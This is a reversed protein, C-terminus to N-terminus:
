TGRLGEPCPDGTSATTQQASSNAFFLPHRHSWTESHGLMKSLPRRKLVSMTCLSITRPTHTYPHTYSHTCVCVRVYAYVRPM